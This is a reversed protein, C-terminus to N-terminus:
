CAALPPCGARGAGQTELLRGPPHALLAHCRVCVCVCACKRARACLAGAHAAVRSGHDLHDAQRPPGLRRVWVGARSGRHKGAGVARRCAAAGRRGCARAGKFRLRVRAVVKVWVRVRVRVRVKVGGWCARRCVGAGRRGCARAGKFRLTVRAVGKVWVRV